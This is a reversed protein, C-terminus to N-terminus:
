LKHQNYYSRIRVVAHIKDRDKLWVSVYRQLGFTDPYFILAGNTNLSLGISTTSVDGIDDPTRFGHILVEGDIVEEM